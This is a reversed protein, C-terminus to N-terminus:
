FLHLCFQPLLLIRGTSCPRRWKTQFLMTLVSSIRTWWATKRWGCARVPLEPKWNRGPGGEGGGLERPDRILIGLLCIDKDRPCFVTISIWRHWRKRKGTTFTRLPWGATVAASVCGGHKKTRGSTSPWALLPRPSANRLAYIRWWARRCAPPLAFLRARRKGGPGPYPGSVEFCAYVFLGATVRM